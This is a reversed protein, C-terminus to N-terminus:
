WIDKRTKKNRDTKRDYLTAREILFPMMDKRTVRSYESLSNSM